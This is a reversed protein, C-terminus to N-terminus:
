FKRLKKAGEPLKPQHVLLMCASNVNMSTVKLAMAAAAKGLKNGNSNM